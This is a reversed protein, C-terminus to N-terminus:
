ALRWRLPAPSVPGKWMRLRRSQLEHWLDERPIRWATSIPHSVGMVSARKAIAQKSRHPMREMAEAMGRGMAWASRVIAEEEPTWTKKM